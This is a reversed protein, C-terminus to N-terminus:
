AAAKEPAPSYSDFARALKVDYLNEKYAPGNYLRAFEAWKRAKLAKLMAPDAEIFRVFAELHDAESRQMAAVFEAISAYGLTEWHYGMIQFAGWSCAAQAIEKPLVQCASALRSWEATGGAYGGRLPNILNPYKDALADADIGFDKALRSAVHREYRIVPRGDDGFGCGRSEVANVAKIAAISVGLRDAARQLDAEGLHKPNKDRTTLAALTKPGAVGDAVLGARLQLATVAAETTEGYWGDATIKFGAAILLRQLTTVQTGTDGKRM